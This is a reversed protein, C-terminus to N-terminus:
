GGCATSRAQSLLYQAFAAHGETNFHQGDPMRSSRPAIRGLNDLLVVKAGRAAVYREIAEVNAPASSADGRRADNGGPQLIVLKTDKSMVGPLRRLMGATTDGAKGANLVSARCGGANLLRELQAPFAQSRPVGDATAGRGRGETNSAGLAVIQAAHAAPAACTLLALTAIMARKM